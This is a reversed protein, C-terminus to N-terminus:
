IIKGVYFTEIEAIELAWEPAILMQSSSSAECPHPCIWNTNDGEKYGM